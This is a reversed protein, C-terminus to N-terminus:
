TSNFDDHQAGVLGEGHVVHGPGTAALVVLVTDTVHGFTRKPEAEGKELEWIRAGGRRPDHAGILCCCPSFLLRQAQDLNSAPTPHAETRGVYRAM